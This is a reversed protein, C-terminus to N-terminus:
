PREREDDAGVGAAFAVQAIRQADQAADPPAMRQRVDEAAGQFPRRNPAGRRFQRAVPLAAKLQADVACQRFRFM